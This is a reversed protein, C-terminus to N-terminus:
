IFGWEKDATKREEDTSPRVPEMDKSHVEIIVEGTRLNKIDMTSPWYVTHKNVPKRYWDAEMIYLDDENGRGQAGLYHVVDGQKFKEFTSDEEDEIECRYPGAELSKEKPFYLDAFRELHLSGDRKIYVMYNYGAVLYKWGDVYSKGQPRIGNLKEMFDKRIEEESRNYSSLETISMSYKILTTYPDERLEELIEDSTLRNCELLSKLSVLLKNAAIDVSPASLVDSDKIDVKFQCDDYKFDIKYEFYM